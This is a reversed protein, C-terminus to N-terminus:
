LWALSSLLATATESSFELGLTQLDNSHLSRAGLDEKGHGTVDQNAGGVAPTAGLREREAQLPPEM